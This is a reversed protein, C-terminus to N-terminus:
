SSDIDPGLLFEPEFEWQGPPLSRWGLLLKYDLSIQFNVVGGKGTMVVAPEKSISSYTGRERRWQFDKVPKFKRPSVYLNVRASRIVVRWPINSSVSLIVADRVEIYGRTVDEPRIENFSNAKRVTLRQVPGLSFNVTVSERDQANIWTSLGLSGLCFCLAYILPKHQKNGYRM